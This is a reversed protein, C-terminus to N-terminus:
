SYSTPQSCGRAPTSYAGPSQAYNTGYDYTGPSYQALHAIDYVFHDFSNDYVSLDAGSDAITATASGATTGTISIGQIFHVNM